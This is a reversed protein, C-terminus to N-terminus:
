RLHADTCILSSLYGEKRITSSFSMTTAYPIVVIKAEDLVFLLPYPITRAACAVSAFSERTVSFAVIIQSETM